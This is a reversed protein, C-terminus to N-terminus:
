VWAVRDRGNNKAMYLGDDARKIMNDISIDKDVMSAIGLSVTVASATTMDSEKPTHTRINKGIREAFIRTENFDTDPLIILFEEGGYRGAIDYTRISKKMVDAVERLMKDGALHGYTDNIAKFNDIDIMICGLDKKLRKAREMEECFREMVQRRNNLGTLADTAAMEEIQQRALSIKKTLGLTFLFFFGLLAAITFIALGVIIALNTKQLDLIERIDFSVSIGGRIEGLKYGEKVHCKICENEVYLPVMYRFYHGNNSDVEEFIEKEGKDFLHLARTEFEDPANAPNIPTLSTLHSTFLGEKGAYESIERTMLAPNKKTFIRGDVTKIDPDELYPNSVVGPKKEVYVGDYSANWKRTIITSDLLARAEARAQEFILKRNTLYVIGFIVSLCLVSALSVSIVFKKYITKEEGKVMRVVGRTKGSM